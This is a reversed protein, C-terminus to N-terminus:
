ICNFKQIEIQIQTLITASIKFSRTSLINRLLAIRVSLVTLLFLFLLTGIIFVLVKGVRVQPRNDLYDTILWEYTLLFAKQRWSLPLPTHAPAASSKLSRTSSPVFDVRPREFNGSGSSQRMHPGLGRTDRSPFNVGMDSSDSTGANGSSNFDWDANRTDSLDARVQEEVWNEPKWTRIRAFEPYM